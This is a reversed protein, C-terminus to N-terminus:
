ADGTTRAAICRTVVQNPEKRTSSPRTTSRRSNGFSGSARASRSARTSSQFTRGSSRSSM